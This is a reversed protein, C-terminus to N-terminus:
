LQLMRSFCWLPPRLSVTYEISFIEVAQVAGHLRVFNFRPACSYHLRIAYSAISITVGEQKMLIKIIEGSIAQSACPNSLMYTCTGMHQLNM